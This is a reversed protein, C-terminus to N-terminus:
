QLIKQRHVITTDLQESKESMAPLINNSLCGKCSKDVQREPFANAEREAFMLVNNTYKYGFIRYNLPISSLTLVRAIYNCNSEPLNLDLRNSLFLNIPM